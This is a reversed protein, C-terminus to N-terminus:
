DIAKFVLLGEAQALLFIDQIEWFALELSDMNEPPTLKYVGAQQMKEYDYHVLLDSFELDALLLAIKEIAAKDYLRIPMGQEATANPYNTGGEWLLSPSLDSNTARIHKDLLYDVTSFHRYSDYFHHDALSQHSGLLAAMDKKLQILAEDQYDIGNPDKLIAPIFQM